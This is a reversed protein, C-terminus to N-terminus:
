GGSALSKKSPSCSGIFGKMRTRDASVDSCSTRASASPYWALVRLSTPSRSASIMSFSSRAGVSLRLVGAFGGAGRLVAVGEAGFGDHSGGKVMSLWPMLFNLTSHKYDRLQPLM